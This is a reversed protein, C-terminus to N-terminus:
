VIDGRRRHKLRAVSGVGKIQWETSRITQRNDNMRTIHGAWKWKANTVYKAIETM